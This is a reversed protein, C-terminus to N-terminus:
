QKMVHCFERLNIMKQLEREQRSSKIKTIASQFDESGRLQGRALILLYWDALRKSPPIELSTSTRTVRSAWLVHFSSSLSIIRITFKVDHDDIESKLKSTALRSMCAFRFWYVLICTNPTEHQIVKINKRDVDVMLFVFVKHILLSIWFFMLCGVM